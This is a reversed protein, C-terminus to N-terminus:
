VKREKNEIEFDMITELERMTLDLRKLLTVFEPINYFDLIDQRSKGQKLFTKVDDQISNIIKPRVTVAYAPVMSLTSNYLNCVKKLSNQTFDNQNIGSKKLLNNGTEKAKRFFRDKINM